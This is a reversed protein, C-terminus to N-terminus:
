CYLEWSTIRFLGIMHETMSRVHSLIISEPCKMKRALLCPPRRWSQLIEASFCSNFHPPLNSDHTDCVQRSAHPRRQPPGDRESPCPVLPLQAELQLRRVDHWIGGHVRVYWRQYRRYHPVGSNEQPLWLCSSTLISWHAFVWLDFQQEFSKTTM